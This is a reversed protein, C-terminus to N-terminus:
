VPVPYNRVHEEIWARAKEHRLPSNDYLPVRAHKTTPWQGRRGFGAERYAHVARWRAKPATEAFVICSIDQVTIRWALKGEVISLRFDDKM